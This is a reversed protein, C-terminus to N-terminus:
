SETRLRLSCHSRPRVQDTDLLRVVTTPRSEFAFVNNLNHENLISNDSDWDM